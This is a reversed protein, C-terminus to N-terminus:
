AARLLIHKLDTKLWKTRGNPPPIGRSAMDDLIFRLSLGRRFLQKIYVDATPTSAPPLTVVAPVPVVPVKVARVAVSAVPEPQTREVPPAPQLPPVLPVGNIRAVAPHFPRCDAAQKLGYDSNLYSDLPFLPYPKLTVFVKGLTQEIRYCTHFFNGREIHPFDKWIAGLLFHRKYIDFEQVSLTRKAILYADACLESGKRGNERLGTRHSGRGLQSMNTRIAYGSTESLWRVHALVARAISRYCCACVDESKERGTLHVGTGNCHTCGITACAIFDRPTM